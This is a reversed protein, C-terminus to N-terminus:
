NSKQNITGLLRVVQTPKEFNEDAGLLIAFDKKLRFFDLVDKVGKIFSDFVYYVHIKDVGDKTIGGSKVVFSPTGLIDTLINFKEEIDGDDIDLCLSGIGINKGKLNKLEANKESCIVPLITVNLKNNAIALDTIQDLYSFIDKLPYFNNIPKTNPLDKPLDKNFLRINVFGDLNEELAKEFLRTVHFSLSRKLKERDYKLATPIISVSNTNTAIDQSQTLLIENTAECVPNSVLNPNTITM